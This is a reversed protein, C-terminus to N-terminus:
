SSISRRCAPCLDDINLGIHLLYARTPLKRHYCLWLFFYLKRPIKLKWIWSTNIPSDKPPTLIRIASKISFVGNNISKWYLKDKSSTSYDIHINQIVNKIDDHISFSLNDFNWERDVLINRVLMHEEHITLLGQILTRLPPLNPIWNNDWM